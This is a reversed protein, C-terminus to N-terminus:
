FYFLSTMYGAYGALLLAAFVRGVPVAEEAVRRWHRWYLLGALVLTFALMAAFDRYLPAETAAHWPHVATAAGMVGFLNIINSGLLCGIAIEHHGRRLAGLTAALEPLSTGVAFLTLGMIFSDIGTVLVLKEAGHVLIRAGLLLLGTALIFRGWVLYLAADSEGPLTDSSASGAALPLLVPVLLVLLFTGEWRSIQMDSLVWGAALTALLMLPIERHFFRAGVKLPILLASIGLVMGINAINSGMANAVAIDPNGAWAAGLSAAFEPASTGFAVATAGFVAAPLHLREAVLLAATVFKDASWVLLVLGALAFFVPELFPNLM